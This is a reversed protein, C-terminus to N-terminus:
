ISISENQFWTLNLRLQVDLYELAVIYDKAIIM